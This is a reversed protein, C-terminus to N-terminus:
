RYAPPNTPWLEYQRISVPLTRHRLQDGWNSAAGEKSKFKSGYGQTGLSQSETKVSYRQKEELPLDFFEWAVQQMRKMLSVPVGHNVLQFFGWDLCAQRISEVVARRRKGDDKVGALDIVPLETSSSDDGHNGRARDQELIIYDAPVSALIGNEVAEQVTAVSM